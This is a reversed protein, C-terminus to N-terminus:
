QPSREIERQPVAIAAALIAETMLHMRDHVEDVPLGRDMRLLKWSYVDTAVVLADIVRCRDDREEPLCAGFVEEVWARHAVRGADCMRQARPDDDEEALVGLAMPGRREYHAILVRLSAGRDGPPTAREAVADRYVRSWAAEILADRSGFHRLLTKVTVGAREAVPGLTIAFSRQAMFTDIAAQIAAERTAAKAVGRARMAYTRKNMDIALYMLKCKTDAATSVLNDVRPGAQEARRNTSENLPESSNTRAHV